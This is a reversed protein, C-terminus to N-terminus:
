IDKEKYFSPNQTFMECNHDEHILMKFGRGHLDRLTAFNLAKFLIMQALFMWCNM